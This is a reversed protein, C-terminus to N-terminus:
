KMPDIESWMGPDGFYDCGCVVFDNWSIKVMDYMEKLVENTEKNEDKELM